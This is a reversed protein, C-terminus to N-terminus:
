CNTRFLFQGSPMIRSIHLLTKNKIDM